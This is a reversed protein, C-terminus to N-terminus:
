SEDRDEVKMVIIVIWSKTTGGGSRGRYRSQQGDSMGGEGVEGGLEEVELQFLAVSFSFAFM